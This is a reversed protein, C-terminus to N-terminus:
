SGGQIRLGVSHSVSTHYGYALEVIVPSHFVDDQSDMRRGSCSITAISDRMNVSGEQTTCHLTESGLEVRVVELKNINDRTTCANIFEEPLTVVGQRVNEITILLRPEVQTGDRRLSVELNSISIPAGQGRPYSFSTRRCAGKQGPDICITESLITEYRYCVDAHISATAGPRPTSPTVTLIHSLKEGKLSYRDKGRLIDTRIENFQQLSTLRTADTTQLFGEPMAVSMFIDESELATAGRNEVTIWYDERIDREDEFVVLSRAGDIAVHLGETGTRYDERISTRDGFLGECGFLALSLCLMIGCAFFPKM